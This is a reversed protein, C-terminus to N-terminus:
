GREYKFHMVIGYLVHLVGFGVTWCELGYTPFAMALFGLIIECIGLYRVDNLTYNGANFLGLGYFILTSSAILPLHGMRWLGIVFVGGVVLPLLLNFLLRKSAPGWMPIGKRLSQRRTFFIAAVFALILVSSFTLLFFLPFPIGWKPSEPYEHYIRLEFPMRDLYLFTVAAGLLAIAGAAVGSLGSLSIFRSSREMMERIHQLQDLPQNQAM